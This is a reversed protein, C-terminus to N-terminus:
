SRPEMSYVRNLEDHRERVDAPWTSKIYSLIAIIEDDTLIDEYAPMASRYNELNAARVVGLKTIDFLVQDPHHWTHGTEDHPPAPM